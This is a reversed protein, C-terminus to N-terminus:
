DKLPQCQPCFFASRQGLRIKELTKGCHLCPQGERGYVFLQQQFYGPAGHGNVFDQLTTGGAKIATVLVAKVIAVLQEYDAFQLDGALRQPHIGAKFLAENAYINGVGVVIHNDMLFTKIPRRKRRSLEFLYTANFDDGLPEPGLLSLLRHEL